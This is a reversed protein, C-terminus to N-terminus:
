EDEIPGCPAIDVVLSWAVLDVRLDSRIVPIWRLNTRPDAIEAGVAVARRFVGDAFPSPDFFTIVAGRELHETVSRESM